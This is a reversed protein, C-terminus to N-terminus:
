KHSRSHIHLGVLGLIINRFVFKSILNVNTGNVLNALTNLSHLAIKSAPSQFLFTYLDGITYVSAPLVYSHCPCAIITNEKRVQLVSPTLLRILKDVVLRAQAQRTHSTQSSDDAATQRESFLVQRLPQSRLVLEHLVLVACEVGAELRKDLQARPQVASSLCHESSQATDASVQDAAATLPM